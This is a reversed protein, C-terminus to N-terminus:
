DGDEPNVRTDVSHAVFEQVSTLRFIREALFYFAKPSLEKVKPEISEVMAGLTILRHNRKKRESGKLFKARNQLRILKHQEQELQQETAECQKELAQTKAKLNGSEKKPNAAYAACPNGQVSSRSRFIAECLACVFDASSTYFHARVGFPIQREVRSGNDQGRIQPAYGPM